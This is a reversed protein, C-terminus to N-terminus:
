VPPGLSFCQSSLTIAVQGTSYQDTYQMTYQIRICYVPMVILGLTDIHWIEPTKDCQCHSENILVRILLHPSYTHTDHQPKIILNSLMSKNMTRHEKNDVLKYLFLILFDWLFGLFISLLVELSVALPCHICPAVFLILKFCSRRLQIIKLLYPILSMVLNLAWSIILELSRTKAHWSFCNLSTKTFIPSM